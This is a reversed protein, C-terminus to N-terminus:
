ENIESTKDLSKSITFYFSTGTGLKSELWIKGKHIEVIKKCITLGIGTGEYHEKSELRQFIVFIKNFYKEEIGIGNDSVKFEYNDINEVCTIDININQKNSYKISNSILNEFLYCILDHDATIIPLNSYNIQISKTDLKEKHENLIYSLIISVDVNRFEINNGIGSYAVLDNILDKMRKSAAVVTDIYFKANDDLKNKYRRELLNIYSTISRLPEQLDHSSIHFFRELDEEAKKRYIIEKNLESNLETIENFTKELNSTMTNFTKSLYGIENNSLVNVRQTLDGESIKEVSNTLQKLSHTLEDSLIYTAIVSLLIISLLLMLLIYEFHRVSQYVESQNVNVVLGWGTKEIYRTASLVPKNIYNIKDTFVSEIGKMAEALPKTKDNKNITFNLQANKMFRLPTLVVIKGDNQYKGLIIEGSEGLGTYDNGLSLIIDELYSEILIVGQLKNNNIIPASLYVSYTKNKNNFFNDISEQRLGRIFAENNSFDSGTLSKDYASLLVKGKTDLILLNKFSGGPKLATQMNKSINDLYQRDPKINYNTLNNIISLRTKVLYLKEFYDNISENIRKKQITAIVDINKLASEEMYKKTTLYSIFTILVLASISVLLVVFIIKSKIKM